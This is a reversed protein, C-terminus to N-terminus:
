DVEEKVLPVEAQAETEQPAKVIPLEPPEPPENAPVWKIGTDEEITEMISAVAELIQNLKESLM